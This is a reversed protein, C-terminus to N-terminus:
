PKPTVETRMLVVQYPNWTAMLFYLITRDPGVKAYRSPLLIPAYEGGWARKTVVTSLDRVSEEAPNTGKGSCYDSKDGRQDHMFRCYAQDPNFIRQPTSWPGWPTAATRLYIGREGNDPNYGSEAINSCTYLMAWKNWGAIFRVSFYGLCQHYGNGNQLPDSPPLPQASAESGQWDPQGNEKLGAFYRWRDKSGVQSLPAVALFTYSHNWRSVPIGTVVLLRNDMALLWRDQPNAAVAPGGLQFPVGITNEVVEHVFVRGDDTVVLLRNDMALLWKDQPNAAVAPGGLQFPVGITNEVV